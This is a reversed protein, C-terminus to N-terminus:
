QAYSVGVVERIVGADLLKQVEGQAAKQREESMLRQGQKVPKAKPNVTLTHEIVKRSVGRLDSSSWAFVDQNNRMFQILRAEGAEELEKGIVLMRDPVDECLSVKKTHKTPSVGENKQNRQMDETAFAEADEESAEIAHM